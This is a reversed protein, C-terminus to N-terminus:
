SGSRLEAGPRRTRDLPAAPEGLVPGLPASLGRGAELPALTAILTPTPGVAVMDLSRIGAAALALFAVLLAVLVLSVAVATTTKM